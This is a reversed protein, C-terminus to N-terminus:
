PYLAAIEVSRATMQADSFDTDWIEMMGFQYQFTDTSHGLSPPTAHGNSGTPRSTSVTSVGDVWLTVLGAPTNRVGLTYKNGITLVSSSVTTQGSPNGIFWFPHLTSNVSLSAGLETNNIISGFLVSGNWLNPVFRFFLSFNRGVGNGSLIRNLSANSFSPLLQRQWFDATAVTKGSFQTSPRFREAAVATGFTGGLTGRNPLSAFDAGVKVAGADDGFLQVIRTGPYAVDQESRAVYAGFQSM